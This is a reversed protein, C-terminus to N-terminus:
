FLPEFVADSEAEINVIRFQVRRNQALDEKAMPKSVKPDEYGKGTTIFQSENLTIGEDNAYSVLADRVSNARSLSLNMGAQWQRQLVDESAQEKIKMRLYQYHDSHGVIELLAGGYTAALELARQFQQGYQAREFTRQNPDFNIEFEFLVNSSPADAAVKQAVDQRFRPQNAGAIDTVGFDSYNWEAQALTQQATLFGQTVLWSQNRKVTPLFGALNGRNAFYDGNGAARAFSCDALLGEMDATAGADDLLQEAAMAIFESYEGGKSKMLEIVADQAELHTEVFTKVWDRNTNFFDQRVAYVDAIVRNASKTSLLVRAGKVSGEAGTGVTMNSTLAAADPSICFAAAISDDARFITAPDDPEGNTDFLEECWLIEVDDWSLGADTLVKDMYEVHPGYQQVIIKKGRLDAPSRVNDRVVLCDGGTSWTLQLAVIPKTREDSNLVESYTNIMGMTGRLFPTKGEMYDRVQAVFDDQKTLNINLGAQEFPSDPVTSAGGNALLTAADGGWTIMPMAVPDTSGVEGITVGQVLEKAPRTPTVFQQAAAPAAIVAVLCIAWVANLIRLM